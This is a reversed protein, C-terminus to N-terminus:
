NKSLFPITPFTIGYALWNLPINVSTLNVIAMSVLYNMNNASLSIDFNYSISYTKRSIFLLRQDNM